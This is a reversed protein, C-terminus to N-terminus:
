PMTELIKRSQIYVKGSLIIYASVWAELGSLGEILAGSIKRLIYYDEEFKSQGGILIQM